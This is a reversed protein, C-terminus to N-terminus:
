VLKRPPLLLAAVMGGAVLASATVGMRFGAEVGAVVDNALLARVSMLGLSGPVLLILGPLLMTTVPRRLWRGYGHSALGIGLAGVFASAVAGGEGALMGGAEAAGVAVAGALVFVWLDEVPSRFLVCLALAGIVIAFLLDGWGAPVSHFEGAPPLGDVLATGLAVGVAMQLLTLGTEAVRASGSMLHGQALESLATTLSLGPVLVILGAITLREPSLPLWAALAHALVAALVSAVSVFLGGAGPRLSLVRQLVGISAGCLLAWAAETWGGQMFVTASAAILAFSGVSAVASAPATPADLVAEVAGLDLPGDAEPGSLVADLRRVQGLDFTPPLAPALEVHGGDFALFVATPMVFVQAPRGLAQAVRGAEAETRHAPLGAAHLTLAIRRVLQEPQQSRRIGM